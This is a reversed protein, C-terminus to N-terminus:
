HHAENASAIRSQASAQAKVRSRLSNGTASATTKWRGASQLNGRSLGGPCTQTAQDISLPVKQGSSSSGSNMRRNPMLIVQRRTESM